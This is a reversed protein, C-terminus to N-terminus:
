SRHKALCALQHWQFSSGMSTSKKKAKKKMHMAEGRHRLSCSLGENDCFLDEIDLHDWSRRPKMATISNMAGAETCVTPTQTQTKSAFVMAMGLVATSQINFKINM